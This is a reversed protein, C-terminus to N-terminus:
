KESVQVRIGESHSSFEPAYMSQITTIGNSFDGEHSVRLPYEFVYTGKNLRDFFFNTSADRTSEYYYLGGQWRIGSIVNVPEFGSARMDKMHVYEMDRDVRLEIRVKVRDGVKLQGKSLPQLVPGIDSPKEIFLEKRLQLPTEAPTIKELTEFYQWYLAGWAVVNNNNKISVYGMDPTVEGGAWSTKFYGTGAEVKIEDMKLPEIRIIREKGLTIDPAKNEALWNEGKLLLAYCANATAKTTRWNNTQKQKLLWTKMEEVSKQDDLIEDFAEILLSHTEVPMQFWYYSWEEKWYMGMEESYLAYQKISEMIAVANKHNSYRNLALAIMAQMYKNFKLWYKEAQGKYYAFAKNVADDMPIDKYFSRGYLYFVQIYNINMEDPKVNNKILLDYDEKLKRDLYLVANKIMNWARPNERIELANIHDLYAFGTVIHQTIYRDEYMGSFWPFAGSPMQGLILKNLATDQQLAMATLDFLQAIRHKRETEDRADMVWPTEELLLSKLEQNKELNSLLANAGNEAAQRKWTEFVQKINPNKNAIYIAISNAYYRSFIQELCEYPFEMLFPLAQVVYWTPNATFELTLKHQKLTTSASSEILKKFEFDKKQNARVPLPLTETVLMRNKLIPVAQEEGDSFRGAAAVIRYVVTDIDAPIQITWSVQSSQGKQTRFTKEADRMRFKNDIPQMTVADFLMLKVNGNLEEESLNTIKTSLEITDGERFFRPFNPVVMLDKQTVIEHTIFGYELNQTHAFGMMKWRTLAEPITFSIIIEGKENTRLHPYFFATEQFNTRAKVTSLDVDKQPAPEVPQNGQGVSTLERTEDMAEGPAPPPMAGVRAMKYVRDWWNFDFWNLEDFFKEPYSQHRQLSGVLSTNVTYFYSNTQWQFRFYYNPYIDFYWYLPRFADLSADYMTALMEAEVKAGPKGDRGKGSIILRWEEKEGPQLKDRFTQLKIDLEKNTWPVNVLTNNIFVRNYKVFVLHIGINGRYKELIPIEIRRQENSLNLHKKEVIRGQSELEYIVHVDQAASGILIVATEGPEVSNKPVAFWELPRGPLDRSKGSYLTFYIVEKVTSGYKDRSTMELVYKGMEWKSLGSLEFITRQKTDFRAKFTQRQREWSQVDDEGAYSDHPFLKYYEEKSMTFRDPTEWLKKRFVRDPEKLKYIIIEGESNVPDGALTTSIINFNYKDPDKDLKEPIDLGIKLAVYGIPFSKETQQTEGNIDTVEAYVTFNFAPQSEKPVATDPVATFTIQFEGEANTKAVGNLIEMPPSPPFWHRYYWPYLYFTERVVRFKVDANDINYGAYAAAKGKVTVVEGLRYSETMPEIIVEFKPRKYEEVSFHAEGHGDSISMNGNLRGIPTQFTGSFTGFENTVLDLHSIEQRNVDYFIVRTSKNPLIRSSQIGNADTQIDLMIGKFYLTQGPRYIGRDTFFVTRQENRSSPTHEYLYFGERIFLRDQGTSDYLELQFNRNEPKFPINLYGNEDTKYLNGKRLIYSQTPKSYERHLLQAFTNTLPQGTQRHLVYFDLGGDRHRSVYSINSITFYCYAVAKVEDSHNFKNNNSALMVYEGTDLAPVKIEASHQQFDGDDKLEVEWATIVPKTLYFDILKDATLNNRNEIEERSTKVIKLYIKCLNRYQVLAPSPTQTPTANEMIINLYGSEILSLLYICKEVGSNRTGGTGFKKIAEQCLDYAKKKLWKYQEFPSTTSSGPVPKYKNGQNYYFYALDYYVESVALTKDYTDLMNQLGKEYLKEKDPLKSENYLFRLRKLDTDLLADRNRDDLHFRFLEQFIKLAHYHFALPDRTTIELRAFDPAPSFYAEDDLSFRYIPQTLGSESNMFFDLARHALFDYLTPRLYRVRLGPGPKILIEDYIDIKTNKSKEADELSKLYHKVTEEVLKKMDWTNIDDQNQDTDAIPTRNLFIHRNNEYYNWTIQALMSHLVPTVPFKSQALEGTLQAYIKEFANEEVEQIYRLKYIVAKIFEAANQEKKAADYIKEVVELASKPLGQNYFTDVEEWLKKFDSKNSKKMNINGGKWDNTTADNNSSGSCAPLATFAMFLIILIATFKLVPKNKKSM